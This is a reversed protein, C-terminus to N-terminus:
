SQIQRYLQMDGKLVAVVRWPWQCWRGTSDGGSRVVVVMGGDSGDVAVVLIVVVVVVTVVVHVVVVGSDGGDSGNAGGSGGVYTM